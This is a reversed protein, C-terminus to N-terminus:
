KGKKFFERVVRSMQQQIDVPNIGLFVKEFVKPFEMCLYKPIQPADRDMLNKMFQYQEVRISEPYRMKDDSAVLLEGKLLNTKPFYERMSHRQAPKFRLSGLSFYLINEAPVQQMILNWTKEYEKEWGEFYILPDFHFVVGYGARAVMAAAEVREAISATKHEESLAITETGM